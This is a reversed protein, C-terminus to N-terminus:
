HPKRLAVVQRTSAVGNADVAVWVLMSGSLVGTPVCPASRHFVPQGSIGLADCLVGATLVESRVQWGLCTQGRCADEDIRRAPRSAATFAYLVLQADARGLDFPARAPRVPDLDGSLSM